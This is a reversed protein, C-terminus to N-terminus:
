NTNQVVHWPSMVAPIGRESAFYTAVTGTDIMQYQNPPAQTVSLPFNQMYKFSKGAEMMWWYKNTNAQSLALGGDVVAALCMQELLPSTLVQFQSSGYPNAGGVGVNLPNSTTQPTTAGSGTRREVSQAGLILNATALKAPNVLITDPRILIRKGTHPDLTRMFQLIDTQLSEWDLLDNSISNTYGLTVSTQYTNYATGNYNFSNTGGIVLSLVELEKRYALELGVSSAMNLVDGTLDFFVAEKLVDVALANERTEPTTVYREGFQARTHAEGPLRKRGRDGIGQIGIVKQGNLKTPMAPCLKDAILDPNQFAELIKVEILGGVVSTFANINLFATPDIGVGSSELLTKAMTGGQPSFVNRWDRGVIGEAAEQISFQEATLSREGLRKNGANDRYDNGQADCLGLNHRIDIGFQKHGGAESTRSEFHSRVKNLSIM